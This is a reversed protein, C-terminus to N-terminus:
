CNLLMHRDRIAAGSHILDNALQNAWASADMDPFHKELLMQLYPTDNVWRGLEAIEIRQQELLKFKLLVKSAYQAHKIPSEIFGALRRRAITLASAVNTFVRGHGPIVTLPQLSEILDLTAAVEHFAENGELEPFVVGFGNEWLADASILLRLRPEFLLIANPDHGAAAHVQWAQDGLNLETGPALLSDYRFPPCTQGTPTYTLKYPDWKQVHEALGPPIWTHLDKYRLQLAANGGCHDSHLHTNVLLDLQRGNLANEILSLTQSAHTCYASDVLATSDHGVMLVNNSSLWGREFVHLGIPLTPHNSM